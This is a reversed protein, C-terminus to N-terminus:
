LFVSLPLFDDVLLVESAESPVLVVDSLLKVDGEGELFVTRKAVSASVGM